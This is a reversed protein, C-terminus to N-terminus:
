NLCRSTKTNLFKFFHWFFVMEVFHPNEPALAFPLLSHCFIVGIMTLTRSFLFFFSIHILKYIHLSTDRRRISFLRFLQIPSHDTIKSNHPPWSCFFANTIICIDGQALDFGCSYDILIISFVFNLYIWFGGQKMLIKGLLISISFIWLISVTAM